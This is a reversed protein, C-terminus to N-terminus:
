GPKEEPKAGKKGGVGIELRKGWMPWEVILTIVHKGVDMEHGTITVGSVCLYPNSQELTAIMELLRAYSCTTSIRVGYPKFTRAGGRILAEWGGSALGVEAVSQVDVGVRRANSYVKETVWSLPNEMPVIFYETAKQLEATAATYERRVKEQADMAIEAKEIKQHLEDLESTSQGSTQLFPRLAFQYLAFVGGFVWMAVLIVAQKQEKTMTAWNM